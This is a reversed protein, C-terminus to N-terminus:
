RPPPKMIQSNFWAQGTTLHLCWRGAHMNAAVLHAKEEAKCRSHAWRLISFAFSSVQKESRNVVLAVLPSRGPGRSTRVRQINDFEYVKGM